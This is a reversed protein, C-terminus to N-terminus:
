FGYTNKRYELEAKRDAKVKQHNGYIALGAVVGVVVATWPAAVLLVGLILMAFSAMAITSAYRPNFFINM